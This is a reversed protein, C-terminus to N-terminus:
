GAWCIAAFLAVSVFIDTPYGQMGSMAIGYALIMTGTTEFFLIKPLPRGLLSPKEIM